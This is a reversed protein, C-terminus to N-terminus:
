NEKSKDRKANGNLQYKIVAKRHEEYTQSFHHSGDGKAVFFLAKTEAPHLVAHLAKGGPMAIPTPPLGRHLYTNYPTDRKLDRYRIDGNYEEGLGYIVSPDTQLRIGRQLRAIFVGAIIPREEPVASEKEVISALILAEYPTDFPLGEARSAWEARLHAIMTEYSRQLFELDTTGRPFHYTDPFFWGEPAMGVRGLKTMVDDDETLTTMIQPHSRVAQLMQKYTWGEPITLTFQITKGQVFHDLLGVPTVPEPVQYEGAKIKDAKDQLRALAAWYFPQSIVGREHLDAALQHFSTGPAIEYSLLERDFTLPEHIFDYFDVLAATVVVLAAIILLFPTRLMGM